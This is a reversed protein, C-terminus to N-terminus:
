VKTMKALLLDKLITLNQSVKTKLKMSELLNNTVSNFHTIEDKGPVKIKMTALIPVYLNLQASGVALDILRDYNNKLSFFIFPLNDEEKPKINIIARNGCMYDGLIGLRGITGSKTVVITQPNFLLASSGASEFGEVTLTRSTNLIFGGNVDNARLWKVNGDFYNPYKQSPNVYGEQFSCWDNLAFEKCQNEKVLSKYIAQATEELKQNLQENLQIRNVVTNYENVIARQKEISPIPLELECFLSWPLGGRVDADTHFWANRDFEKRSFWMMLYEPLIENTDVIEFVDYAPSVIFEKEAKSLAIPIRYDRGVHMRNCAFQGKKVVKYKTLDVGVINAVSPMFFKDINIGLLENHLGETNKVKSPKIFDGIKRYNSRM